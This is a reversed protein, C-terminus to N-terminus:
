IWILYIFVTLFKIILKKFLVFITINKSIKNYFLIAPLGKKKIKM